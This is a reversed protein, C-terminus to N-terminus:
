NESLFDSDCDFICKTFCASGAITLTFFFFLLGTIIAGLVSTAAFTVLLLIIATLISGLAGTLLGNLRSCKCSSGRRSVFPAALLSLGLYGAGIGFIVWLLPVTVAITGTFTLFAAVVGIIVSAILGLLSCDYNCSCSIRSM